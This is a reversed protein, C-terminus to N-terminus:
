RKNRSSITKQRASVRRLNHKMEEDRVGFSVSVIYAFIIVCFGPLFRLFVKGNNCVYM